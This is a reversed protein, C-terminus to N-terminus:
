LKGRWARGDATGEDEEETLAQEAPFISELVTRAEGGDRVLQIVRRRSLRTPMGYYNPAVPAIPTLRRFVIDQFSLGRELSRKGYPDGGPPLHDGVWPTVFIKFFLGM